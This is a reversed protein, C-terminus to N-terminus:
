PAFGRLAAASAQRMSGFGLFACRGLALAELTRHQPDYAALTQAVQQHGQAALVARPIQLRYRWHPPSKM